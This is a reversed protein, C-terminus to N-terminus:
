QQGGCVRDSSVIQELVLMLEETFSPGENQDGLVGLFARHLAILKVSAFRAWLTLVYLFSVSSLCCSLFLSQLCLAVKVNLSDSVSSLVVIPVLDPPTSFPVSFLVSSPLIVALVLLPWHVFDQHVSYALPVVSWCNRLWLEPLQLRKKIYVRFRQSPLFLFLPLQVLFFVGREAEGGPVSGQNLEVEQRIQGM